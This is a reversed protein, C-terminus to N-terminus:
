PLGTAPQPGHQQCPTAKRQHQRARALLHMRKPQQDATEEVPTGTSRHSSTSCLSGTGGTVEGTAWWGRGLRRRQHCNGSPVETAQGAAAEYLLRSGSSNLGNWHVAQAIRGSQARRSQQGHRVVEPQQAVQRVSRDLAQIPLRATRCPCRRLHTGPEICVQVREDVFLAGHQAHRALSGLQLSGAATEPTASRVACRVQAVSAHDLSRVRSPDRPRSRWEAEDPAAAVQEHGQCGPLLDHDVHLPRSKALVAALQLVLGCRCSPSRRGDAASPPPRSPRSHAVVDQAFAFQQGRRRIQKGTDPVYRQRLAGGGCSHCRAM